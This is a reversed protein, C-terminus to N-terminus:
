EGKSTKFGYKIEKNRVEHLIDEETINYMKAIVASSILVHAIEEKLNELVPKNRKLKACAQILEACEEQLIDLQNHSFTSLCRQVFMDPISFTSNSVM